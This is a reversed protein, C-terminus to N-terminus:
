ADGSAGELRVIWATGIYGVFAAISMTVAARSLRPRNGVVGEAMVMLGLFLIAFVCAGLLVHAWTRFARGNFMLVPRLLYPRPRSRAGARHALM